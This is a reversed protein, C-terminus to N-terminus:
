LNDGIERDSFGRSGFELGVRMWSRKEVFICDMVWDGMKLGENMAGMEDRKWM